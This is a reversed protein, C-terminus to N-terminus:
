APPRLPAPKAGTGEWRLDAARAAVAAQQDWQNEELYYRAEDSSCSQGAAVAIRLFLRVAKQQEDAASTPPPAKLVSGPRRPILLSPLALMAQADSLHALRNARKIDDTAVGYHLALGALTEREWVEHVWFEEPAAGGISATVTGSATKLSSKSYDKSESEGHQGSASSPESSFPNLEPDQQSSAPVIAAGTAPKHL